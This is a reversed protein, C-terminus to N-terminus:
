WNCVTALPGSVISLGDIVFSASRELTSAVFSETEVRSLAVVLDRGDALYRHTSEEADFEWEETTTTESGAHTRLEVEENQFDDGWEVRV